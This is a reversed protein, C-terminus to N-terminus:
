SNPKGRGAAELAEARIDKKAEARAARLEDKAEEQADLNGKAHAALELGAIMAGITLDM